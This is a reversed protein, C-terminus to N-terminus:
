QGVSLPVAGASQAVPDPEPDAPRTPAPAVVTSPRSVEPGPSAPEVTVPEPLAPGLAVRAVRRGELGQVRLCWPSGAGDVRVEDGVAPLRGLAAM